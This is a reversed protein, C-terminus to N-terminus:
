GNEAPIFRRDVLDEPSIRLTEGTVSGSWDIIDQLYANNPLRTTHYEPLIIRDALDKDFNPIHNILMQLALDPDKQIDLVARNLAKHFGAIAQEKETLARNTFVMVDPSFGKPAEFVLKELGRAEGATAIPEPLLAMDLQGSVVAELRAPIANIFVKKLRYDPSLWQDILFNSVSVEMTGVVLEEKEKAGPVAVLPFMGDTLMTAKIPFGASANVAVAVLDTMAGDIQSTQLASQRDQANFFIQFHVDLNEGAFYGKERALFFPAIDVAPMLGITLATTDVEETKKQRSCGSISLFPILLVILVMLVPFHIPKATKGPSQSLKMVAAGNIEKKQIIIM